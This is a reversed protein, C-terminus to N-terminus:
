FRIWVGHCVCGCMQAHCKKPPKGCGVMWVIFREVAYIYYLLLYYPTKCVWSRGDWVVGVAVNEHKRETAENERALEVLDEVTDDLGGEATSVELNPAVILGETGDTVNEVPRHFHLNRTVPAPHTHTHTDNKYLPNRNM